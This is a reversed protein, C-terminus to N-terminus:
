ANDEGKEIAREVAMKAEELLQKSKARLTFSESIKEAIIQQITKGILPIPMNLVDEDRIVPYSTGVNYKLLLDKYCKLRFLVVLTEKNINGNERLVTFAGSCILDEQELEIIGVAGRYPRVKSVLIDGKSVKNKANAPLEEVLINNPTIEGNSVNVDSIEIYDYSEQTREYSTKNQLFQNAVKDYGGRYSKIRGIIDDYKLQYYEADLRGSMGFSESFSKVAVCENSPAFDNLGL